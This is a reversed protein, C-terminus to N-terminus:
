INKKGCLGHGHRGHGHKVELAMAGGAHAWSSRGAARPRASAWSPRSAGRIQFPWATEAMLYSEIAM